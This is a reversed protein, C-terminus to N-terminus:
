SSVMMPPRSPRTIVNEASASAVLTGETPRALMTRSSQCRSSPTSRPLGKRSLESIQPTHHRRPSEQLDRRAPPDREVTDLPRNLIDVALEAPEHEYIAATM